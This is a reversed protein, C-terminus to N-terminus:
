GETKPASSQDRNVYEVPSCGLYKQFTRFFYNSSSFGVELATQSATINKQDLVICAKEVRLKNLYTSFHENTQETFLQGLYPATLNFYTSLTKLSMPKSYNSHVYELILEGIPKISGRKNTLKSCLNLSIERLWEITDSISKQRVLNKFLSEYSGLLEKENLSERKIIGMINSLIEISFGQIYEKSTKPHNDIDIELDNFYEEINQPSVDMIYYSLKDTGCNLFPEEDVEISNVNSKELIKVPLYRLKNVELGRFYDVAVKIPLAGDMEPEQWTIVDLLNRKLLDIGVKTSGNAATVIDNRGALRLADNIGLQSVNDDACIIGKLESGYEKLWNTVINKTKLRNLEGSESCLCTMKPFDKRLKSIVGNKRAYYIPNDKLHCIVGYGGSGNMLGAFRTALHESQSWDDPGTYSLIYKFDSKKPLINSSIVPVGSESITQLLYSSDLSYEPMLIILDPPNLLVSDIQQEQLYPDWESNFVKLDFGFIDAEKKLGSQYSSLYPHNGSLFAVIKLGSIDRIM